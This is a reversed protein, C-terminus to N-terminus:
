FATVECSTLLVTIRGEIIAYVINREEKGERRVRNTWSIEMMRWSQIEFSEVYKHYVKRLTWVELMM